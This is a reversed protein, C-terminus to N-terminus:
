SLYQETTQAIVSTEKRLSRYWSQDDGNSVKLVKFIERENLFFFFFIVSINLKEKKQHIFKLVGQIILENM